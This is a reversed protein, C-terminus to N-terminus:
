NLIDIKKVKHKNRNMLELCKESLKTGQIELMKLKGDLMELYEGIWEADQCRVVRIEELKKCNEFKFPHGDFETMFCLKLRKVTPINLELISNYHIELDEINEMTEVESTKNYEYIWLQIIKLTRVNPFQQAWGESVDVAITLDNVSNFPEPNTFRMSPINVEKLKRLNAMQNFVKLQNTEFTELSDVQTAIFNRFFPLREYFDFNCLKLRKLKINADRFTNDDFIQFEDFQNFLEFSELENQIMLFSKFIQPMAFTGLMNLHCIKSCEFIKLISISSKELNLFTFKDLKLRPLPEISDQENNTLRIAHVLLEKVNGCMVLIERLVNLDVLSYKIELSKLDGGICEFIKMFDEFHQSDICLKSYKRMPNWELDKKSDFISIKFKKMLLSSSNIANTFSRCTESLSLLDSSPLFSFINILVEQPLNAFNQQTM